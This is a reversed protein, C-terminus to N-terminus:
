NNQPGEDKNQQTNELEKTYWHWTLIKPFVFMESLDTAVALLLLQPHDRFKIVNLSCNRRTVGGRVHEM